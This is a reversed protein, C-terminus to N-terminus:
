GYFTEVERVYEEDGDEDEWSPMHVRIAHVAVGTCAQLLFDTLIGEKPRINQWSHGGVLFL